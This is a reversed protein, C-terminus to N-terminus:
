FFRSVKTGCKTCKGKMMNRGNKSKGVQVDPKRSFCIARCKVCYFANKDLKDKNLEVKGLKGGKKSKTKKSKKKPMKSANNNNNNNNKMSQPM